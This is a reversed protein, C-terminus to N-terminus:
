DNKAKLIANLDEQMLATPVKGLYFNVRGSKSWFDQLAQYEGNKLVVKFPLQEMNPYNIDALVQAIIRANAAKDNSIFYYAGYNSAFERVANDSVDEFHTLGILTFNEANDQWLRTLHAAEEKCPACFTGFFDMMLAKEEDNEIIFGKKARVLTLNQGSISTLHVKEGLKFEEFALDNVVEEQSCGSFLALAALMLSLTCLGKLGCLSIDRLTNLIFFNKM